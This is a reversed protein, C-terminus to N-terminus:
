RQHRKVLEDLLEKKEPLEPAAPPEAVKEIKHGLGLIAIGNVIFSWANDPGHLDVLWGVAGYVISLIGATWTKWGRMM